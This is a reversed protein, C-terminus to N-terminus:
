FFIIKAPLVKVPEGLFIMGGSFFFRLRVRIKEEVMRIREVM